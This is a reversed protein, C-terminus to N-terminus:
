LFDPNTFSGSKGGEKSALGIREILMQKDVAKCMDYLTLAAISLATLAEMEVGTKGFCRATSTLYIRQETKNLEINVEVQDLGLPHCMPILDGTKKAGLIGATKAVNFADGKSLEGAELIQALDSSIKISGKAVAVRRTEQKNSVDVMQARGHQNFHSLTPKM